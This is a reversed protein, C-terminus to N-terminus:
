GYCYCRREPLGLQIFHAEPPCLFYSFFFLCVIFHLSLTLTIAPSSFFVWHNLLWLRQASHVSTYLCFTSARFRTTSFSTFSSPPLTSVILTTKISRLIFLQRSQTQAAASSYFSALPPPLLFAAGHLTASLLPAPGTRGIHTKGVRRM